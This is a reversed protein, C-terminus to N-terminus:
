DNNIIISHISNIFSCPIFKSIKAKPDFVHIGVDLSAHKKQSFIKEPYRHETVGIYFYKNDYALGRAFGDCEFLNDYSGHFLQGFMSNLFTLKGNIKYISHPMSLNHVVVVFNEKNELNFEVIAGDYIENMWNGSVSFMSVYLSDGIVLPDNVHHNDKKNSKWKNSIFYEDKCIGNDISLSIISDRGPCGVFIEKNKDNYCIGHPESNKPLSFLNIEKFNKDLVVVGRMMDVLYFNEHGKTIGRAKGSYLKKYEGSSSHVEYLGGGTKKDNFHQPSTILIKSDNHQIDEISQRQNLLPTCCFDDGMVLGLDELEQIVSNFNATTIVIYLNNESKIKIPDYVKLNQYVTGQNLSSKDVIFLPKKKIECQSREIWNSAGWYVFKRKSVIENIEQFTKWKSSAM